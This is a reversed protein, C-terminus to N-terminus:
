CSCTGNQGCLSLDTESQMPSTRPGFIHYRLAISCQGALHACKELHNVGERLYCQRMEQRVLRGMMVGIWQERIIADSAAQVAGSDLADVGDFTPLVKPKQAQFMESEPTPM